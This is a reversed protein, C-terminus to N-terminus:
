EGGFNKNLIKQKKRKRRINNRRINNQLRNYALDGICNTYIVKDIIAVSNVMDFGELNKKLKILEELRLCTIDIFWTEERQMEKEKFKIPIITRKNM